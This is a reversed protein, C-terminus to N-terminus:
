APPLILGEKKNRVGYLPDLERYDVGTRGNWDWVVEGDFLTLENFLRRDAKLSGGHVDLYTFDGKWLNLAAVDAVAGVSLHGLEPHGIEQAPNITSARIVDPLPMGLVLLKSMVTPMDMMEANMCHTHLDSSISDPYFGQEIAPVALRFCFSGGGHGVDFIIGRERADYLYKFIRGDADLWPVDGLFMHTSIDGAAMRQTVLEYYPRNSPFLGFDIMAPKDIRRAAELTRDVPTWEPGLYHATKSGVILDGNERAVAEFADVDMDHFNQEIETSIMGLGVINLFAFMRTQFRELVRYRFDEFTRWGATGTDVMTTVGTRFSFGDPLISQDGAWAKRNGPTAYMHAHIDVIGPIITLGTVDIVKGAQGAPIDDDVAAVKGKTIALDKQADIGNKPDILHGGKLLLDFTM